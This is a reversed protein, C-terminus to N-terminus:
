IAKFQSRAKKAQEDTVEDSSDACVTPFAVLTGRVENWVKKVAIGFVGQGGYVLDIIEQEETCEYISAGDSMLTIAALDDTGRANLTKAAERVQGLSVGADLLKKIVRLVLLDHFSYLRQSGSGKAGRISPSVLGTRDWYDLQRYTIGVAERAVASQYGTKEDIGALPDGFLMPQRQNLADSM